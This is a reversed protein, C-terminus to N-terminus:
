FITEGNGPIVALVVWDEIHPHQSVDEIDILGFDQKALTVSSCSSTRDDQVAVWVRALM